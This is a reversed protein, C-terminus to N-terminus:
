AAAHVGAPDARGWRLSAIPIQSASTSCVDPGTAASVWTRSAADSGDVVDMSIRPQREFEGRDNVRVVNLRRLAPAPDTERVLRRCYADDACVDASLAELAECDPLGQHQAFYVEGM